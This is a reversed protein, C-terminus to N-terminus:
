PRELWLGAFCLADHIIVDPQWETAAKHMAELQLEVALGAHLQRRAFRRREEQDAISDFEPFRKRLDLRPPYLGAQFFAFGLGEVQQRM